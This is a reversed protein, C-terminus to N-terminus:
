FFYFLAILNPLAFLFVIFSTKVVFDFSFKSHFLVVLVVFLVYKMSLALVQLSVDNLFVNFTVVVNFILMLLMAVTVYYLNYVVHVYKGYVFMAVVAIFAFFIQPSIFRVINILPNEFGVNQDNIDFVYVSIIFVYVSLLMVVTSLDGHKIKLIGGWLFKIFLIFRLM